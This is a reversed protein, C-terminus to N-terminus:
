SARLIRLQTKAETVTMVFEFTGDDTELQLDLSMQEDLRTVTAKARATREDKYAESEIKSAVLHTPAHDLLFQRVNCGYDPWYLVSGYPTLLRRAICRLYGLESTSDVGLRINIADELWAYDIGLSTSAM